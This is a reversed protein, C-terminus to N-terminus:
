EPWIISYEPIDYLDLLKDRLDIRERHHRMMGDVENYTARPHDVLKLAQRDSCALGNILKLVESKTLEVRKLGCGDDHNLIADAFDCLSGVSIGLENKTRSVPIGAGLAMMIVDDDNM